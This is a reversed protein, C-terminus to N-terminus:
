TVGKSLRILDTLLQSDRWADVTGLPEDNGRVVEDWLGAVDRELHRDMNFDKHEDSRPLRNEVGRPVVFLAPGRSLGLQSMAEARNNGTRIALVPADRLGKANPLDKRYFEIIFPNEIGNAEIDEKLRNFRGCDMPGTRQHGRDDHPHAKPLYAEYRDHYVWPYCTIETDPYFRVMYDDINM